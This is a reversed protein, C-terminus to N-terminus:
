AAYQKAMSTLRKELGDLVGEARAKAEALLLSADGFEKAFTLRAEALEARLEDIEVPPRIPGWGEVRVKTVYDPTVGLESAVRADSWGEAYNGHQISFHADILDFLARQRKISGVMVPEATVMTKEGKAQQCSPCWALIGDEAIRWGLRGFTRRALEDGANVPLGHKPEQGGCESCVIVLHARVDPTAPVVTLCAIRDKVLALGRHGKM